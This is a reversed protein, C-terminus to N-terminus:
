VKTKGFQVAPASGSTKANLSGIESSTLVHTTPPPASMQMMAAGFGAQGITVDLDFVADGSEFIGHVSDARLALRIGEINTFIVFSSGGENLIQVVEEVTERISLSGRGIEPTYTTIVTHM